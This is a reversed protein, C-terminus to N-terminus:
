LSFRGQSLISWSVKREMINHPGAIIRREELESHFNSDICKIKAGVQLNEKNLKKKKKYVANTNNRTTYKRSLM